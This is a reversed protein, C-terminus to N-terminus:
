LHTHQGGARLPKAQRGKTRSYPHTTLAAGVPAHRRRCLAGDAPRTGIKKVSGTSANVGVFRGQKGEHVRVPAGAQLPPHLVRGAHVGPVAGGRDALAEGGRGDGEQAEQRVRAEAGDIRLRRHSSRKQLVRVPALDHRERQVARLREQGAKRQAV